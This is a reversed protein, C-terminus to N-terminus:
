FGPEKVDEPGTGNRGYSALGRLSNARKRKTVPGRFPLLLGVGGTLGLSCQPSAFEQAGRPEGLIRGAHRVLRRAQRGEGSLLQM